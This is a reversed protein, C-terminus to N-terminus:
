TLSGLNPVQSEPHKKHNRKTAGYLHQALVNFYTVAKKIDKGIQGECLLM